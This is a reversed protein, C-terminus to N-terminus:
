SVTEYREKLSNIEEDVIEGRRKQKPFVKKKDFRERKPPKGPHLRGSKKAVHKEAM